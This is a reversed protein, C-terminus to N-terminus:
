SVVLLIVQVALSSESWGPCGVLRFLTKATHETPLQPGLTEEHPCRLCQDSKVSQASAWASRLRRAPHVHWKTPKTM